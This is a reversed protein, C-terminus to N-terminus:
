RAFRFIGGTQAYFVDSVPDYSWMMVEGGKPKGVVKKWTVGGDTSEYAADAAFGILRGDNRGPV